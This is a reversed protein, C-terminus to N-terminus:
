LGNPYVKNMKNLLQLKTDDESHLVGFENCYDILQKRTWQISPKPTPFPSEIPAKGGVWAENTYETSKDDALFKGMKGRARKIELDELKEGTIIEVMDNIVEIFKNM